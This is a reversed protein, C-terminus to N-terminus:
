AHCLFNKVLLPAIDPYFEVVILSEKFKGQAERIFREKAESDRTLEPPMFKLAVTRKLKSMEWLNSTSGKDM